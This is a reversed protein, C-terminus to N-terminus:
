HWRVEARQERSGDELRLSKSRSRGDGEVHVTGCSKDRLAGELARMKRGPSWPACVFVHQLVEPRKGDQCDTCQTCRDSFFAPSLEPSPPCLTWGPEKERCLHSGPSVDLDPSGFGTQATTVCLLWYGETITGLHPVVNFHTRYTPQLHKPADQVHRPVTPSKTATHPGTKRGNKTRKSIGRLFLSLFHSSQATGVMRLKVARRDKVLPYFSGTLFTM